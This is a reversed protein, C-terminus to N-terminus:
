NTQIEYEGLGDAFNDLQRKEQLTLREGKALKRPNGCCYSRSCLTRTKAEIGIQTDDIPDPSGGGWYSWLQRQKIRRHSRRKWREAYFRRLARNM